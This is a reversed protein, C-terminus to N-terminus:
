EEDVIFEKILYERFGKKYLKSIMKKAKRKSSFAGIISMKKTHFSSPAIALFVKQEEEKKQKFINFM